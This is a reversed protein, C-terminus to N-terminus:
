QKIMGLFQKENLIKVGLKKAKEYKSGPSEGAVVFDTNKSVSENVEGGLYLIKEKAKSRPMQKLSGTLVFKKGALKNSVRYKINQVKVRAFLKKLFKKNDKNKFWGYVSEAVVGGINPVAELEAIGAKSLAGISGFRNALDRATHEGVNSIGLAIIFRPLTIERRRDIAKIINAASKEGFRQLPSLDGQKLDFIDAADQILNNDLFADIVKPGVGEIDFAGKSVFYHLSRRHRTSCDKNQCRVIPSQKEYLLKSNCMPCYQPMKFKKEKGTRLDEMVRIIDPIVDGAKQIIVTDGARVDLREVEDKNHLTARSVISGAISVPKLHAVPTLVGTRGVQVDIAEVITAAEEAPFKFAIAFRPAKGTFGLEEQWGRRNLKVVVGDIWYPMKDRKGKWENWFGIVEVIGRCLRFNSNVKFGLRKLLELEEFQTKPLPFDAWSLDYIFSDLQRSAAVRPDFQRISGAAANRPNAFLPKGEKKRLKNLKDFGDRGMWIEGEAICDVNREL